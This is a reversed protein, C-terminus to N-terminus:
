AALLPKLARYAKTAKQIVEGAELLKSLDPHYKKLIRRYAAKIHGRTLPSASVLILSLRNDYCALTELAAKDIDSLKSECSVGSASSFGTLIDNPNIVGLFREISECLNPNTKCFAHNLLIKQLAAQQLYANSTISACDEAGLGDAIRQHMWQIAQVYSQYCCADYIASQNLQHELVLLPNNLIGPILDKSFWLHKASSLQEYAYRGNVIDQVTKLVNKPSMKETKESTSFDFHAPASSNQPTGYASLAQRRIAPLPLSAQCKGASQRAYDCEAQFRVFAEEFISGSTM